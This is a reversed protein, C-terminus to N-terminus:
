LWTKEFFAWCRHRQIEKHISVRPLSTGRWGRAVLFVVRVSNCPSVIILTANNIILPLITYPMCLRMRLGKSEENRLSWSCRGITGRLPLPTILWSFSLLQKPTVKPHHYQQSNFTFRNTANWRTFCPLVCPWKLCKVAHFSAFWQTFHRLKCRQKVCKVAGHIQLWPTSPHSAALRRISLLKHSSISCSALSAIARQSEFRKTM